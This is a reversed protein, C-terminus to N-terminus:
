LVLQRWAVREAQALKAQDYGKPDFDSEYGVGEVFKRRTPRGNMADYVLRTNIELKVPIKRADTSRDDPVVFGVVVRGTTYDTQTSFSDCGYRTLMRELEARSNGVPTSTTASKVFADRAKM